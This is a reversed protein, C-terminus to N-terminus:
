RERLEGGAARDGNRVEEYIELHRAAVESWSRSRTLNQTAARM